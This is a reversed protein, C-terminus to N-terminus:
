DGTRGVPVVNMLVWNDIGVQQCICELPKAALTHKRLDQFVPVPENPLNKFSEKRYPTIRFSDNIFEIFGVGLLEREPVSGVQKGKLFAVLSNATNVSQLRKNENKV